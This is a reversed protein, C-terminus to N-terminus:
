QFLTFNRSFSFIRFIIVRYMDSGSFEVRLALRDRCGFSSECGIGVTDVM